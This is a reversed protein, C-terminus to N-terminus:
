PFGAAGPVRTVPRGRRGFKWGGPVAAPSRAEGGSPRRCGRWRPAPRPPLTGSVAKMLVAFPGAREPAGRAPGTTPQELHLHALVEGPDEEDRLVDVPDLEGSADGVEAHGPVLRRGHAQHPRRHVLDPRPGGARGAAEELPVKGYAEVHAGVQGALLLLRREVRLSGLDREEAGVRSLVHALAEAEVVGRRDPPPAPGHLRPWAWRGSGGDRRSMRHRRAARRAPTGRGRRASHIPEAAKAGVICCRTPRALGPTCDQRSRRHWTTSAVTCQAGLRKASHKRLTSPAALGPPM